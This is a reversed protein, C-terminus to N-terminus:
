YIFRFGVFPYDSKEDEDIVWIQHMRKRRRAPEPEPEPPAGEGYYPFVGTGWTVGGDAGYPFSNNPFGGDPISM